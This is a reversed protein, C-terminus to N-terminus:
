YDDLFYTDPSNKMSRWDIRALEINIEKDACFFQVMHGGNLKIVRNINEILYKLSEISSSQLVLIRALNIGRHPGLSVIAFNKITESFREYILIHRPGFPHFFRWKLQETNWWPSIVQSDKSNMSGALQDLMTNGPSLTACWNKFLSNDNQSSNFFRAQSRYSLLKNAAFFFSGQIPKLPKIYWSADIKQYKLAQYFKTFPQGVGPMLAHEENAVSAMVLMFGTGHRYSEDVMLNHLAPVEINGDEYSWLLRMKHICGLVRNESESVGLLFDQKKLSLPNEQYLWRIYNKKAQYSLEGFHKWTFKQYNKFFSDEFPVWHVKSM